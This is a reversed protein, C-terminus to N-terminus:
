LFAVAGLVIVAGVTVVWVYAGVNGSQGQAGLWAAGRAALASGRVLLGDIVGVDVGRWLVRRSFTVTPRAVARDLAEDVYWGRRMARELGSEPVDYQAKPALPTRRLLVVALV